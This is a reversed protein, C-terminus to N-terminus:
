IDGKNLIKIRGSVKVIEIIYHNCAKTASTIKKIEANMQKHREKLTM